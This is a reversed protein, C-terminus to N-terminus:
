KIKRKPFQPDYVIKIDQYFTYECKNGTNKEWEKIVHIISKMALLLCQLDDVGCSHSHKESDPTYVSWTVKRSGPSLDEPTNIVVTVFGFVDKIPYKATLM